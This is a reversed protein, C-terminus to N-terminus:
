GAEAEAQAKIMLDAILDYCVQWAAETEADWEDGAQEALTAMLARGVAAYDAESVGYGVHRAGMSTIMDALADLRDLSAVITGLMAVFKHGQVSLDSSFLSRLRPEQEFLHRYFAYAIQDRKDSLGRYSAQVRRKQEPTM